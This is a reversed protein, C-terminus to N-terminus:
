KKKLVSNIKSSMLFSFFSNIDLHPLLLHPMPVDTNVVPEYVRLRDEEFSSTYTDSGAYEILVIANQLFNPYNKLKNKIAQYHIGPTMYGRGANIVVKGNSLEKM